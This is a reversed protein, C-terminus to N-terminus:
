KKLHKLIREQVVDSDLGLIVILKDRGSLGGVIEIQSPSVDLVKAILKVLAQNAKGDIPPATLRIRVTGDEDIGSIEDRNARPTVRVTIASGSKGGRLQPKKEGM